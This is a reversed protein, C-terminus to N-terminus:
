QTLLGESLSGDEREKGGCANESKRKLIDVVVIYQLSLPLM